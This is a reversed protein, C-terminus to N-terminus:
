KYADVDEHVVKGFSCPGSVHQKKLSVKDILSSFNNLTHLDTQKSSGNCNLYGM